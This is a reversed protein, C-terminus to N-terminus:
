ASKPALKRCVSHGSRVQRIYLQPPPIDLIEAADLVLQHIGPLQKPGVLVSTSIQELILMQEALPTVISKTLGALGPIAQLLQTNQQDLPHRFDSPCPRTCVARWTM